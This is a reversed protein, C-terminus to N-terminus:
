FERGKHKTKRTYTTKLRHPQGANSRAREVEARGIADITSKPTQPRNRRKSKTMTSTYM